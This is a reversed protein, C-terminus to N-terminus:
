RSVAVMMMEVLGARTVLKAGVLTRAPPDTPFAERSLEDVRKQKWVDTVYVLNDVVHSFSLGLGDLTHRVRTLVERTQGDLDGSNADTNGLVGSLFLFDGARVGTSLPLSPAVAPGVVQRDGETAILTIEVSSDNGMLPMVATARAPPDVIFFKRYEDNMAEFYSDDTLFVRAAVVDAYTLGATKLLVGANNLITTAQTSLPGPVPQDDTGRRSVLGSLFVLGAAKVIYSYPRASKVWGAPHLVERAAGNPVAIASVTILTGPPLDAGVTTRTPPKDAFVERYADNMATFDAPDRLYVTVAVAQALSSGAATLVTGLWELVQRTQVGIDAAAARGAPAVPTVASVFVLGGAVVAPTAITGDAGDLGILKREQM